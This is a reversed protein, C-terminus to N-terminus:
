DLWKITKPANEGYKSRMYMSNTVRLRHCLVAIINTLFRRPIKKELLRTLVEESLVLVQSREKAFAHASRERRDFMAMEGFIEGPGLDALVKRKTEYEDIIEITGTLVIFMEHGIDGKRFLLKGADVMHVVGADIIRNIESKTLGKFADSAAM